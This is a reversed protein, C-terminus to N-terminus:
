TARAVSTLALILIGLVLNLRLLQREKKSLRTIEVAQVDLDKGADTRHALRLSTRQLDPLVGWTVYSSIGIMILFLLHKLLIAAAWPSDFTLFGQYNENLSMQILGTVVLIAMCLWGLPDLRKQISRLLQAYDQSDLSKFAAPIVLISLSVIGGIWVVTAVMHLWYALVLAVDAPSM